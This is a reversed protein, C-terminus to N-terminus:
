PSATNDTEGSNRSKEAAAYADRIKTSIEDASQFEGDGSAAIHMNIATGYASSINALAAQNGPNQSLHIIANELAGTNLYPSLFDPTNITIDKGPNLEADQAVRSLADGIKAAAEDIIKNKIKESSQESYKKELKNLYVSNAITDKNSSSPKQSSNTPIKKDNRNSLDVHVVDEPADGEEWCQACYFNGENDQFAESGPENTGIEGRCMQCVVSGSPTDYFGEGEKGASVRSAQSQTLASQVLHSNSAFAKNRAEAKMGRFAGRFAGANGAGAKKAAVGGAAGAAAGRAFGAGTKVTGTFSSKIRDRTASFDVSSFKISGMADMMRKRSKILLIAALLLLVIGKFWNGGGGAELIKISAMTMVISISMLIGVVIRQITTNVVLEAWGKFIEWGKNAWCAFLFMLPSFAMLIAIEIALISSLLAFFLPGAVGIIAVLVSNVATGIRGWTSEVGTWRSWYDLPKIDAAPGEETVESDPQVPASSLDIPGEKYNSIADVIRWWDNAVNTTYRSREGEMGLPAHANTLTSLNFVAWNNIFEGNGLPVAADGVWEGNENGLFKNKGGTPSDTDEAWLNEFSTGWQGEVWPRFTFTYWMQCGIASRMNTAAQELIGSAEEVSSDLTGKDTTLSNTKASIDSECLGYGGAIGNGLASIVVSQTVIAINNPLAIFWAPNTFIIIAIIFMGVSRLLVNISARFARKVLGHYMIWLATLVMAIVIFAQFVNVFLSGVIGGSGTKGTLLVDLGFLEVLNTFSLNILTITLAVILKTLSFIWNAIVLGFSHASDQPFGGKIIVRPDTTSDKNAWTTTPVKRDPYFKGKVVDQLELGDCTRVLNSRFEGKYGTWIMGALGFRDYVSVRPGSNFELTEEYEIEEPTIPPNLTTGIITENVKKFGTDSGLAGGSLDIMWNFAADVRTVHSSIASKSFLHYPIYDTYAFQYALSPFSDDGWLCSAWRVPDSLPTAKKVDEDENEAASVTKLEVLSSVSVFVFFVSLFAAIFAAFNFRKKVPPLPTSIYRARM